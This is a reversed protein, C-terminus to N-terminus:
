ELQAVLKRLRALSERPKRVSCCICFRHHRDDGAYPRVHWVSYTSKRKSADDVYWRPHCQICSSQAASRNSAGPLLLDSRTSAIAFPITCQPRIEMPARRQKITQGTV